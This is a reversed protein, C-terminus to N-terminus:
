VIADIDLNRLTERVADTSDFRYRWGASKAKSINYDFSPVDGKWGCEGGTYEYKVDDLGLREGFYCDGMGERFTPSYISKIVLILYM